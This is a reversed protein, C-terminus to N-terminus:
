HTGSSERAKDRLQVARANDPFEKLIKEALRVVGSWNKNKYEQELQEVLTGLKVKVLASRVLPAAKTWENCSEQGQESKRLVIAKNTLVKIQEWELAAFQVAQLTFKISDNDGAVERIDRLFQDQLGQSRELPEILPPIRQFNTFANLWHGQAEIFKRTTYSKQGLKDESDAMNYISPVLSQAKTPSEFAAKAQTVNSQMELAAKREAEVTAFWMTEAGVCVVVGLAGILLARSRNRAKPQNDNGGSLSVSGKQAESRTWKEIGLDGTAQVDAIVAGLEKFMVEADISPSLNSAMSASVNIIQKGFISFGAITISPVQNCKSVVTMEFYRRRMFWYTCWLYYAGALASVFTVGWAYGAPLIPLYSGKIALLSWVGMSVNGTWAAIGSSWSVVGLAGAALLVKIFNERDVQTARDVLFVLFALPVLILGRLAFPNAVEMQRWLLAWGASLVGSILTFTVLAGVLRLLSFRTGQSMSINTVEAIPVENYLRNSGASGFGSSGEAFYVLRRNTLVVYGNVRLGFAALAPPMTSCHYTKVIREGTAATLESEFVNFPRQM